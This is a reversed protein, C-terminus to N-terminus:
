GEAAVEDGERLGRRVEVRDGSREGLGVRRAAFRRPAVQVFVVADDGGAAWPRLM